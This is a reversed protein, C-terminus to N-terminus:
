YYENYFVRRHSLVWVRVSTELSSRVFHALCLVAMLQNSSNIALLVNVFSIAELIVLRRKFIGDNTTIFTGLPEMYAEVFIKDISLYGLIEQFCLCHIEKEQISVGTKCNAIDTKCLCSM